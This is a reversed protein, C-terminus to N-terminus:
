KIPKLFKRFDKFHEFAPRLYPRPGMKVTGLEVYPAYEINSGMVGVFTNSEVPPQGVGDEQKAPSEVKGRTLGSGSWNVSISSRLRGTDVPCRQKAERQMMMIAKKIANQVEGNVAKKLKEGYWKVLVPM